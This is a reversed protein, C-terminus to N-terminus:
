IHAPAHRRWSIEVTFEKMRTSQIITPHASPLPNLVLVIRRPASTITNERDRALFPFLYFPQLVGWQIASVNCHMGNRHQLNELANIKIKTKFEEEQVAQTSWWGLYSKESRLCSICFPTVWWFIQKFYVTTPSHNSAWYCWVWPGPGIKRRWQMAQPRARCHSGALAKGLLTLNVYTIKTASGSLTNTHQRKGKEPLSSM